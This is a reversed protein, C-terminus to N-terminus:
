RCDSTAFGSASSAVAGSPPFSSAATDRSTQVAPSKLADVALRCATWVCLQCRPRYAAVLAKCRDCLLAPVLHRPKHLLLRSLEFTRALATEGGARM